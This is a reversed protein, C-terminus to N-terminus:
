PDSSKLFAGVRKFFEEHSQPELEADDSSVEVIEDGVLYFGDDTKMRVHAETHPYASFTVPSIDNLRVKVLTRSVEDKERNIAINRKIIKFGFSSKNVDGRKMLTMLDRAWTTDPPVIEYSLGRSDEALKLTNGSTSGLVLDANHNWLAMVNDKKITESFAGPAVKERMGPFLEVTENFIAAYGIIKPQRPIDFSLRIESAACYRREIGNGTVRKHESVWKKADEMSWKEKDFCYRQIVTPGDPDSRLKDITAQIGEEKSIDINRLSDQVFLNKDRIPFVYFNETTQLM